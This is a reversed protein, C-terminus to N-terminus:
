RCERKKLDKENEIVLFKLEQNNCGTPAWIGAEIIKMIIEQPVKNGNFIRVSRREKILELLIESYKTM